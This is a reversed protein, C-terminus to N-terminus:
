REDLKLIRIFIKFGFRKLGALYREFKRQSGLNGKCKAPENKL